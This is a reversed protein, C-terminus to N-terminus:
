PAPVGLADNVKLKGFSRYDNKNGERRTPFYEPVDDTIGVLSVLYETDKAPIAAGTAEVTYTAWGKGATETSVDTQDADPTMAVDVLLASSPKVAIHVRVEDFQGLNVRVNDAQLFCGRLERGLQGEFIVWFDQGVNLSM